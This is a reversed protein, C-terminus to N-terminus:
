TLSLNFSLNFDYNNEKEEIYEQMYILCRSDNLGVYYGKEFGRTYASGLFVSFVLIFLVLVALFLFFGELIKKKINMVKM